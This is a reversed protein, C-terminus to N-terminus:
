AAVTDCIGRRDQGRVYHGHRKGITKLESGREGLDQDVVILESLSKTLFPSLVFTRLIMIASAATV